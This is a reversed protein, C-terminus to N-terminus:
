DLEMPRNVLDDAWLQLGFGGLWITIQDMWLDLLLTMLDDAITGMHGAIQLKRQGQDLVQIQGRYCMEKLSESNDSQLSGGM